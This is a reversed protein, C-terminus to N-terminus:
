LLPEDPDRVPGGPPADLPVGFKKRLEAIRGDPRPVFKPKKSPLPPETPKWAPAPPRAPFWISVAVLGLFALCAAALAWRLQYGYREVVVAVAAAAFVPVTLKYKM